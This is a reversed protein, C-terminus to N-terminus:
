RAVESSGLLAMLAAYNVPKVLHGDFGAASSKRRDEDQGWGTLAIVVMPKGWTQDRILRCVEYGNLGPLGIDLLVVEPRHREAAEFASHGEYATFTENGTLQLLMALSTASDENDDVVLIRRSRQPEVLATPEPAAAIGELVPLRVVFTSGRGEGASRAEVSGGHMQVLRRVLTLGIGLGGQSRELSRDVQNFMEFVSELRDRPIGTGNDQVTVVGETGRRETTVEITGGPDTYKASNTLLNGFVQALRAPDADLYIPAAPAAVRLTHREADVLPRSAEVAQNVLAGLEVRAKRLELRDHTIRSLDLLDDVLRVLQGLQREMTARAQPLAESGGDRKLVELMNALPALPNRLEHALTALFENKRRDVESLDAALKRLNDQLRRRETVDQSVTAFAVARGDDDTLKLVKYAMWLAEGTRFHRFRVDIEGHGREVVTAIFEDMIRAQDEPFFFQRVPTRRAEEMGDLGVMRLGAPNIYIPMADLDSIGVFDTSNEILTVFKQREAEAIKRETIDYGTPALFLTRGTEDKIPLITIAVMRESGDAVYYPMEARFTEGAAAQASASKVRQVLEPSPSWWPGEWFPKGLVQERTFGCGEWSLRNADLLTGDVDMIGAFLAGQEFFARFKANAAAAEALLLRERDKAERQRTVDRVIKSAAVVRGAEDKIPSITLSVLILRGDSRLRETEFHEIREGAKLRAIIRQEEPMRDPPIVLAISRGIAQEATYGFLREAGANWSQIVGDLSKRVIADDSSEVISALQRAALLRDAEDKEWRRRESVDRFILVCGSVRGQEDKIPAASDDIPREVGDRAILVSRNALGVVTGEKLARAAPSEVPQRTHENVVQFVTDLAQGLAEHRPWGTLTLAASNLSTIRGAIDTTIVADGISGLTVQLLEGRESARAQARRMAEGIGIILSCTFLYAVLGVLNPMDVAISGRPAIFLYGVALYGLVAVLVAPYCGGVWVVAAVAGFLTVLPLNDGLFPDLLWRLLVAGVLAAVATALVAIPRRV